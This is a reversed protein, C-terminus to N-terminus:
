RLRQTAVNRLSCRRRPCCAASRALSLARRTPVGGVHAILREGKGRERVARGAVSYVAARVADGIAFEEGTSGTLYLGPQGEDLLAHVLRECADTDLDEDSTLPTLLAAFIGRCSERNLPATM